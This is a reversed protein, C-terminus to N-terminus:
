ISVMCVTVRLSSTTAHYLERPGDHYSPNWFGSRTAGPDCRTDSTGVDLVIAFSYGPPSIFVLPVVFRVLNLPVLMAAPTTLPTTASIISAFRVACGPATSVGFATLAM